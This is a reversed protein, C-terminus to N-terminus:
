EAWDGIFPTKVEHVPIKIAQLFDLILEFGM